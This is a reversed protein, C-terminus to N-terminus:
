SLGHRKKAEDRLQSAEIAPEGSAEFDAWRKELEEDTLQPSLSEIMRRMDAKAEEWDRFKSEGKAISEKRERLVEEHWAPSEFAEANRTLDEWLAEMLELKEEITMDELRVNIPM